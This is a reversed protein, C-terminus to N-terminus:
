VVWGIRLVISILIFLYQFAEFSIYSVPSFFYDLCIHDFKKDGIKQQIAKSMRITDVMNTHIHRLLYTHVEQLKGKVRIFRQQIEPHKDDLTVVDFRRRELADCRIRDRSEQGRLYRREDAYVMGLLLCHRKEKNEM